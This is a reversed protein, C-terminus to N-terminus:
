YLTLTPDRYVETDDPIDDKEVKKKRYSTAPVHAGSKRKQFEQLQFWYM